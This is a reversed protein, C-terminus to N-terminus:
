TLKSENGASKDDRVISSLIANTLMSLAVAANFPSLVAGLTISKDITPVAFRVITESNKETRFINRSESVGIIRGSLISSRNLRESRVICRPKNANGVDKPLNGLKSLNTRSQEESGMDHGVDKGESQIAFPVNFISEMDLAGRIPFKGEGIAVCKGLKSSRAKILMFRLARGSIDPAGRNVFIYTDLM